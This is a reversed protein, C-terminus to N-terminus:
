ENSLAEIIASRRTIIDSMVQRLENLAHVLRPDVLSYIVNNGQRENSVLGKDRLLKLHRSVVPQSIGLTQVLDNVNRPGNDLEYILMLRVPDALGSCMEAHFQMIESEIINKM